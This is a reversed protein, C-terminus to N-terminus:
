SFCVYKVKQKPFIRVGNGKHQLSCNLSTSFITPFITHLIPLPQLLPQPYCLDRQNTSPISTLFELIKFHLKM